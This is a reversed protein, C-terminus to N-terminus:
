VRPEWGKRYQPRKWLAMAEPDGVIKGTKPDVNITHGTRVAINAYHCLMTSKQCEGIESNPRKGTRVCDVFNAFHEEEGGAGRVTDGEGSTKQGAVEKGKKDFLKYGTGMIMLTGEDGYFTISSLTEAKRDHSCCQEWTVFKDGFDFSAIGTDPTEQDDKCLYRGGGWTVRRPIDVGLGWRCVDLYHIANNGLEGNGWHWFFHWNYHVVNDKYPRDPAAGQWLEYDLWEPVPAPKGVGISPRLRTYWSRATLVKGIAGSKIKGIAEIVGPMSRRQNGMQVIRKHKRAAAVMTESEFPDHSGPKEVYVHKGAKCALITAIAHWHNPTAITIADVSKDELVRRIDKEGKPEKGTKAAVAKVGKALARSDVDCIYGIEVNPLGLLAKIHAGGRSNCGMVAVVLKDNAGAATAPLVSRWAALGAGLIASQQFFVRRNISQNM